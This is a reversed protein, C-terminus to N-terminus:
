FRPKWNLVLTIPFGAQETFANMLFRRGDPSVIYEQRSGGTPTSGVRAAFLPVPATPVVTPGTVPFHMSVAMLQGDPAIYFLEKGDPGWRPQLGGGTSVITRAAPGPFPQAYIEFHGSENSEFAIWRGDPSFQGAREDYSTQAVPFPKSDGSMPLAGIDWAGSTERTTMYLLFRGDRSWDQPIMNQSTELLSAEQGAGTTPKEYLGFGTGEPKLAAYVIRRGDPSWVPYIEPRRDFTFRSLVNRGLDVLWIDTNGKVTRNLAVLRGDPSLAPNLPNASDPALSNGVQKGSRDFWVLQRQRNASGIRYVISGVASGSVAAIGVADVNVGEALPVADGELALRLPNFGQAFLTGARPFLIHAPPIFMAAAEADFLRRREPGDVTGVYVGRATTDAEAVYYLFHHGDPLFQPFRHGPQGRQSGPSLASEGGAASVRRIAADPVPTYLIVGERNWTGGTGVPAVALARPSGGDIDIRNVRENAFFGISRSDPSWFPFSAGDTGGIPRASGTVMSRLWLKPRGDSSAVFVLKEGDPSIALSVQDTTPPTTIDVHIEPALPVPRFARAMAVAAILALLAVASMWVVRERKAARISGGVASAAGGSYSSLGELAFALDGASQFRAGPNKELCRNVIREVAPPIHREGTPLEPPDEKLIATMVDMATDGRFARQGRLMEYLTAGLAFIDSRGDAVLGRAQEPSMYGITGLVVGPLTDPPTTPLASLAASPLEAQTIKALGFDLIKVRGDSTVFLNEPKLDRHVIGKEHAAALGHAIQVALEVAKRVPLGGARLRERLTEGDLVESVIFPAGDHQGIDYVALINPHNLAAAARAEQEFRHLRDPDVGFAAPLVKIAVDRGLRPDRARYVEGMAGAGLPSLIEYAGLRTGTSLSM